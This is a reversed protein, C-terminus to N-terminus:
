DEGEKGVRREESRISQQRLTISVDHSPKFLRYRVNLTDDLAIEGGQSALAQVTPSIELPPREANLSCYAGM